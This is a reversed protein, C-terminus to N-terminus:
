LDFPSLAYGRRNAEEITAIQMLMATGTPMWPATVVRIGTDGFERPDVGPAYRIRPPLDRNSVCDM